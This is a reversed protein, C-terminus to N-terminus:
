SEDRKSGQIDVPPIVRTVTWQCYCGPTGMMSWGVVAGFPAAMWGNDPDSSRVGASWVARKPHAPVGSSRRRVAQSSSDGLRMMTATPRSWPSRSRAAPRGARESPQVTDVSCTVPLGSAKSWTSSGTSRAQDGSWVGSSSASSRLTLRRISLRKRAASLRRRARPSSPARSSSASTPSSTASSSVTSRDAPGTGIMGLRLPARAQGFAPLAVGAASASALTLFRRRHLTM